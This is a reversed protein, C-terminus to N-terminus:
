PRQREVKRGGKAGRSNGRKKAVIAARVGVRDRRFPNRGACTEVSGYSVKRANEGWGDGAARKEEKYSPHSLFRIHSNGCAEGSALLSAATAFRIPNVKTQSRLDAEPQEGGRRVVVCNGGAARGNSTEPHSLSESTSKM